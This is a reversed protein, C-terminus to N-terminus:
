SYDDDSYHALPANTQTPPLESVGKGVESLSLLKEWLILFSTQWSSCSNSLFNLYFVSNFSSPCNRRSIVFCFNWFFLIGILRTLLNSICCFFDPGLTCTCTMRYPKRRRSNTCGLVGYLGLTSHPAHRRWFVCVCVYPDCISSPYSRYGVTDM